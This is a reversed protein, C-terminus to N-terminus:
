LTGNGGDRLGIGERLQKLLDLKPPHLGGIRPQTGDGIRPQTNISFRNLRTSKGALGQSAEIWMRTQSHQNFTSHQRTLLWRDSGEARTKLLGESDCRLSRTKHPSEAGDSNQEYGDSRTSCPPSFAGDTCSREQCYRAVIQRGNQGRVAMDQDVTMGNFLKKIGQISDRRIPTQDVAMAM